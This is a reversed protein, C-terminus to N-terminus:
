LQSLLNIMTPRSRFIIELPKSKPMTVGSGQNMDVKKGDVMEWEFCQILGGLTLLVIKMALAAGPCARRGVGFPVFKFGEGEKVELGEFREPKFKTAEEWIMPDRHLAWANVLVTTGRPIDFGGVSCDESSSHPLLLPATPYLRLTENVVNQLYPLKVLDMDDILHGPEVKSDIEARVKKLVEPHNLLLSIAWELTISSTDTGASIVAQLM